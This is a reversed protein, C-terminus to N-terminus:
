EDHATRVIKLDLVQGDVDDEAWDSGAWDVMDEAEERDDNVAMVDVHHVEADMAEDGGAEEERARKVGATREAAPM